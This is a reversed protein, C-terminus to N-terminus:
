PGRSRDSNRQFDRVLGLGLGLAADTGIGTLARIADITEPMVIVQDFVQSTYYAHDGDADEWMAAEWM